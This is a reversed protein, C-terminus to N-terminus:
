DLIRVFHINRGSRKWEVEFEDRRSPVEKWIGNQPIHMHPFVTNDLESFDANFWINRKNSRDGLFLQGNEAIRFFAITAVGEDADFIKRLRPIPRGSSYTDVSQNSGNSYQRVRRSPKTVKGCFEELDSIATEFEAEGIEAANEINALLSHLKEVKEMRRALALKEHQRKAEEARSDAEEWYTPINESAFTGDAQAQEVIQNFHFLPHFQNSSM